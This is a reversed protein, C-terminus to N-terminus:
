QRWGEGQRWPHCRVCLRAAGHEARPLTHVQKGVQQATRAIGAGKRGTSWRHFIPAGYRVDHQLGVPQQPVGGDPNDGNTVHSLLYILYCCCYHRKTCHRRSGNLM